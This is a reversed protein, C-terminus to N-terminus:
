FRVQEIVFRLKQEYLDLYSRHQCTKKLEDIDDATPELQQNTQQYMIANKNPLHDLGIAHGLEHSLTHVLENRNINFYVEIRQTNPDYIGEEPRQALESNYTNVTKDLQSISTNFLQTSQNLQSAAANLREAENKLDQQQANLKDYQDKPAGGRANWYDIQSNLEEVKKKFEASAKEYEQLSPNLKNQQNQLQDQLTAIKQSLGQREDYILNVSLKGQASYKFLEHSIARDWAQAAEGVDTTFEQRNLGYKPDVTDIKYTILKDCPSFYLFKTQDSYPLSVV